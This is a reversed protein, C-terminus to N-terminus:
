FLSARGAILKDVLVILVVDAVIIFVSLALTSPDLSSVTRSYMWIPLTSVDVTYM